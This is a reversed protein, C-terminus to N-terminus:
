CAIPSRAPRAEMQVLPRDPPRRCLPQRPAEADRRRDLRRPRRRPDGRAGRLEDAEILASLDFREPDLRPSSAGRAARAARTWPLARLDEKGDFLIDYLRVFAPYDGLMKASVIKRGLRQQLANFSAAGAMSTRARSSARSWCNATSCATPRRVGRRRRPLQRSIDDGARSYLRTEGGARVIQVRIGDWKWEAAYDDLSVRLDELPHALMFPRFVPVDEATPQPAAGRPGPSSRCILRASATGSRRSRMSTSGSRRRWLSRPSGPRSASGCARRHRAQAPRLPRQRRSPRAHAALAGPAEARGLAALREVVNPSGCPATTSTPRSTTRSRGSCPCRRPWTASM